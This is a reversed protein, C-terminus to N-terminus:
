TYSQTKLLVGKHVYIILKDYVKLSQVLLSYLNLCPGHPGM